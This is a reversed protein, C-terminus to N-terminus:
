RYSPTPQDSLRLMVDLSRAAKIHTLNLPQFIFHASAAIKNIVKLISAINASEENLQSTLESAQDLRSTLANAATM